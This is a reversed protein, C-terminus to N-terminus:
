LPDLRKPSIVADFFYVILGGYVLVAGIAILWREYRDSARLTEHNLRLWDLATGDGYFQHLSSWIKSTTELAM